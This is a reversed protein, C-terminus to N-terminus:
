GVEQILFDEIEDRDSAHRTLAQLAAHLVGFDENVPYRHDMARIVRETHGRTDLQNLDVLVPTEGQERTGPEWKARIRARLIDAPTANSDLSPIRRGYWIIAPMGDDHVEHNVFDSLFNMAGVVDDAEPLEYRPLHEAPMTGCLDRFAQWNHALVRVEEPFAQATAKLRRLAAEYRRRTRDLTKELMDTNM